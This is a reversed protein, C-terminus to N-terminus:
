PLKLAPAERRRLLWRWRVFRPRVIRRRQMVAERKAPQRGLLFRIRIADQFAKGLRLAPMQEGEMQQFPGIDRQRARM